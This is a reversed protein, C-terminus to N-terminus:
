VIELIGSANKSFNNITKYYQNRFRISLLLYNLFLGIYIGVMGQDLISVLILMVIFSFINIKATEYLVFKSRSVAQLSYKYIQYYPNLLNILTLIAILSSSYKILELDNTILGPIYNRFIIFVISIVIYLSITLTLSIKPIILMDENNKAGFRESVLTLTATGYMYMPMFAINLLQMVLIYGSLEMTGIRALIANIGIIFLSGEIFEQGMLPMSEKFQNKLHIIYETIKNIEFRLDKKAALYYILLNIMLSIITSIGAGEVGLEPFGFHGFILTYNLLVNILSATTSGYFIWKTKKFIKFYTSFTFLVLQIIIYFQMWRMYLMAQELIEGTFGFILVLLPEKFFLLILFFIFGIIISLIFSAAFESKFKDADNSGIFKAGRINFAVAISGLIGTITYLMAVIVGVAAFAEVSIRGVMAQDVLGLALGTISQLLLPLAILNIEKIKAQM